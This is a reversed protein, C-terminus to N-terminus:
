NSHGLKSKGGSNKLTNYKSYGKIAVLASTYCRLSISTQVVVMRNHPSHRSAKVLEVMNSM